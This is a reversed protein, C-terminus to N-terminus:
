NRRSSEERMRELLDDASSAPRASIENQKELVTIVHILEDVKDEQKQILRQQTRCWLWMGALSFLLLVNM